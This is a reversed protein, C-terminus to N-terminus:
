LKIRTIGTKIFKFFSIFLLFCIIIIDISNDVIINIIVVSVNKSNIFTSVSM